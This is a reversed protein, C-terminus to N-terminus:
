EVCINDVINKIENMSLVVAKRRSIEELIFKYAEFYENNNIYDPHFNITLCGGVSETENFLEVITKKAQDLSYNLAHESFIASDMLILPIELIAKGKGNLFYPFSTGARFGVDTNFGLTSDIAIDNEMHVSNTCDVNYHLYHQRTCYIPAGITDELLEKQEKFLRSESATNFSGHLGIEFNNKSLLRIYDSALMKKNNYVMEDMLSYDCDYIAVDRNEPRVFFFYTSKVNHKNELNVWHQYCWLEDEKKNFLTKKLYTKFINFDIKVKESFTVANAKRKRLTRLFSIPSYNELRDVDHTLCVAFTNQEGWMKRQVIGKQSIKKIVFTDLYPIRFEKNSFQADWNGWIDRSKSEKEEQHTLCDHVYSLEDQNFIDNPNFDGFLKLYKRVVDTL